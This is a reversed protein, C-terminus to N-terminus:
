SREFRRQIVMALLRAKQRASLIGRAPQPIATNFSAANADVWADIADMAVRLDPKLILGEETNASMYGAWVDRRDAESLVAM